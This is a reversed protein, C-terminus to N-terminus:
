PRGGYLLWHLARRLLSRTDPEPVQCAMPHPCYRRGQQCPGDNCAPFHQAGRRLPGIRTANTM